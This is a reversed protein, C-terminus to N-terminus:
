ERSKIKVEDGVKPVIGPKRDKVELDLQYPSKETWLPTLTVGAAEITELPIGKFKDMFDNM